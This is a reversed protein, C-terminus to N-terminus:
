RSQKKAGKRPRTTNRATAASEKPRTPACPGASNKELEKDAYNHLLIANALEVVDDPNSIKDLIEGVTLTAPITSCSIKEIGLKCLTLLDPFQDARELIGGSLQGVRVRESVTLTKITFRTPHTSARDSELIYELPNGLSLQVSM